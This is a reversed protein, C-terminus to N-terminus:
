PNDDGEQPADSETGNLKPDGQPPNKLAEEMAAKQEDETAAAPAKHQSPDVSEVVSEDIFEHQELEKKILEAEQEATHEAVEVVAKEANKLLIEGKDKLEEPLAEIIEKANEKLSDIVKGM